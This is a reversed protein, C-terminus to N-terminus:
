NKILQYSQIFTSHDTIKLLYSSPSFTEISFKQIGKKLDCELVVKGNLDSLSFRLTSTYESAIFLWDTSPNPYVQISVPNIPKGDLGLTSEARYVQQVGQNLQQNQGSFSGYTTQGISFSLSGAESRANGGVSVIDRQAQVSYSFLLILFIKSIFKM